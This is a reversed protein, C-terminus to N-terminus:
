LGLRVESPLFGLYEKMAERLGHTSNYGYKTAIQDVSYKGALLEKSSREVRCRDVFEPFGYGVLTKFTRSLHFQSYGVLKSAEKLSWPLAPDKKVKQLLSKVYEPADYPITTLSIENKGSMAFVVLEHLFGFILPEASQGYSHSLEIIRDQMRMVQANLRSYLYINSEEDDKSSAKKSHVWRSLASTLNEDWSILYHDFSGRSYHLPIEEPGSVFLISRSPALYHMNAKDYQVLLSGKLNIHIAYEKASVNMSMLIPRALNGNKRQVKLGPLNVLHENTSIQDILVEQELLDPNLAM